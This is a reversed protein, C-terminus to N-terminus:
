DLKIIEFILLVSVGGPIGMGEPVCGGKKMPGDRSKRGKFLEYATVCVFIHSIDARM